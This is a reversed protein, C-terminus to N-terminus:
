VWEKQAKEYEDKTKGTIKLYMIDLTDDSTLIHTNFRAFCEKGQKHLENYASEIDCGAYLEIEEM